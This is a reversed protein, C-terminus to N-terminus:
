NKSEVTGSGFEERFKRSFEGYRGAAIAARAEGMLRQYFHLNHWTGLRSGLIEGANFLHRLYARTYNRCVYCDCDEELPRHDNKFAANRVTLKGRRTFVTGNRGYRTPVTCDFMDIGFALQAVIDDPTGSGMLYRPKGGPLLGATMEAVEYMLVKPEGVSLGGIGYGAFGIGEMEEVSRKRLDEYVGGQIIGFLVQRGDDHVRRCRLAWELTMELSACAYEHESPYPPCEDFAMVVDSGLVQQIRISDEPSLHHLSGSIHDRFSVGKERSITRLDSLSFVQYGGSDTLIPRSWNMMRHLGGAAAIVDVGPRLWLHYTNGLIIEAGVEELEEPTMGKVTGQTGVPMFCPTRVSGHDLELRGLRAATSGDRDTVTFKV